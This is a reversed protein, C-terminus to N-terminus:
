IFQRIFKSKRLLYSFLFSTVLVFAIILVLKLPFYIEWMKTYTQVYHLIPMHILYIGLSNESLTAIFRNTINAYRNFIWLIMLSAFLCLCSELITYLRSGVYNYNNIRLAMVICTIIIVVATEIVLKKSNPILWQFRRALIGFIFPFIYQPVKAPEVCFINFLLIFQNVYYKQRFLLTLVCIILFFGILLPLSLELKNGEKIRWDTLQRFLAYILCFFFLMQLFWVHFMPQRVCTICIIWVAFAPILLRKTKKWLFTRFGQKDYSSPVFYGAIMFFISMGCIRLFKITCNEQLTEDPLVPQFHWPIGLDTYPIMAHAIIVTLCILAKLNDLGINRAPTIGRVM